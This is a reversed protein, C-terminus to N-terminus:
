KEEQMKETIIKEIQGENFTVETREITIKKVDQGKLKDYIWASVLLAGVDIAVEKGIELVFQIVEPIGVSKRFRTGKFTASVGKGITVTTQGNKLEKSDFLDFGLMNDNTEIEVNLEM